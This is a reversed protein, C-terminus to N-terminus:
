KELQNWYKKCIVRLEEETGNNYIVDNAHEIYFTDRQQAHIRDLAHELSLGDRKIIREARVREKALVCVTRTCLQSLGSEFLVAADIIIVPSDLKKLRNKIDEIIYKHTIKNLIHLKQEDSFVLVGLKKRDLEGNTLLYEDGFAEVIEQLAPMAPRVIERAVVDADIIQAGFESLMKCFASKGCGSGGTVGLIVRM